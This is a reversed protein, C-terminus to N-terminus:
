RRVEGIFGDPDDFGLDLVVFHLTVAEAVEEGGELQM